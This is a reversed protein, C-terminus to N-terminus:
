SIRSGVSEAEILIAPAPAAESGVLRLPLCSLQYDGPAVARLDCGEIVELDLDAIVVRNVASVPDPLDIVRAPGVLSDLSRDAIGVAGAIVHSPADVHTGTHFGLRWCSVDYPDGVDLRYEWEVAPEATAPWHIMGPRVDMSIDLVRARAKALDVQRSM